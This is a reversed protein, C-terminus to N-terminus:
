LPKIERNSINSFTSLVFEIYAIKLFILRAKLYSHLWENIGGLTVSLGARVLPFTATLLYAVVLVLQAGLDALTGWIIFEIFVINWAILVLVFGRLHHGKIGQAKTKIEFIFIIDGVKSVELWICQTIQLIIQKQYIFCVIGLM